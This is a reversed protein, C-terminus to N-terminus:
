KRQKSRKREEKEAGGSRRKKGKRVDESWGGKEALQEV